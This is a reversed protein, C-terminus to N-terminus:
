NLYVKGISATEDIFSYNHTITSTSNGNVFGIKEWNGTTKKEVSFGQNNTETATTWNLVVKNAYSDATFSTLEVPVLHFADWYIEMEPASDEAEFAVGTSNYFPLGVM